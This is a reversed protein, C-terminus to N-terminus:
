GYLSITISLLYLHTISPEHYNQKWTAVSTPRFKLIMTNQMIINIILEMLQFPDTTQYPQFWNLLYTYDTLSQIFILKLAYISLPTRLSFEGTAIRIWTTQITGFLEFHSNAPLRCIPADYDLILLITNPMHLDLTRRHCGNNPRVLYKLINISRLCKTKTKRLVLVGM